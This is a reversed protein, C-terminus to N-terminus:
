STVYFKVGHFSEGEHFHGDALFVGHQFDNEIVDERAQLWHGDYIKPSYGLSMYQVHMMTNVIVMFRWGPKKLKGSWYPTKSGRLKGKKQIPLDFSDIVLTADSVCTAFKTHHAAATWDTPSGPVIHQMAWYYLVRRIVKANHHLSNHAVPFPLHQTQQIQQWGVAELDHYLTLIVMVSVYHRPQRAGWLKPKSDIVYALLDQVIPRTLKGVIKKTVAQLTPM